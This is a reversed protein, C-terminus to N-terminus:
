ARHPFGYFLPFSGTKPCLPFTNQENTSYEGSIELSPASLRAEPKSSAAAFLPSVLIARGLAETRLLPVQM